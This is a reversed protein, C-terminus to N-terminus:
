QYKRWVWFGIIAAFIFCLFIIIFYRNTNAKKLHQDPQIAGTLKEVPEQLAGTADRENQISSKDPSILSPNNSSSAPTSIANAVTSSIGAASNEREPFYYRRYFEESDEQWLDHIEQIYIDQMAQPTPKSIRKRSDFIQKLNQYDASEMVAFSDQDGLWHDGLQLLKIDQHNVLLLSDQVQLSDVDLMMGSHFPQMQAVYKNIIAFSQVFANQPEYREPRQFIHGGNDAKLILAVTRSYDFNGTPDAQLRFSLFLLVLLSSFIITSIRHKDM